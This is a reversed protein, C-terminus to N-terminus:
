QIQTFLLMTIIFMILIYNCETFNAPSQEQKVVTAQPKPAVGVPERPPAPPDDNFPALSLNM